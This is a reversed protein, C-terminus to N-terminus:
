MGPEPVPEDLTQRYHRELMQGIIRAEDEPPIPLSAAASDQGGSGSQGMAQQQVTMIQTLPTGVFDGLTAHQM